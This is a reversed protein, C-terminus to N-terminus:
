SAANRNVEPRGPMGLRQRGLEVIRVERDEEPEVGERSSAHEM